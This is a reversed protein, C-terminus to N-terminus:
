EWRGMILRKEKYAKQGQEVALKLQQRPSKQISIQLHSTQNYLRVESQVPFLQIEKKEQYGWVRVSSPTRHGCNEGGMLSKDENKM